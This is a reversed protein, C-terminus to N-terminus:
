RREAQLASRRVRDILLRMPVEGQEPLSHTSEDLELAKTIRKAAGHVTSHRERGLQHAIEPWSLTTLDRLLYASVGRALTIRRHRSNGLLEHRPINLAECVANVVDAPRVPRPAAAAGLTRTVLQLGITEGTGELRAMADLRTLAGELERVTGLTREVVLDAAAPELRLGRRSALHNVIALRTNVDPSEIHVVMGSVCRSSLARSFAKFRNPHGDGALLLKTGHLLCADLMHLFENQTGEKHSFFHVDDIALLDLTRLQQRFRELDHERVARIYENTFQEASYYRIRSFQTSAARVAGQLLHTKGVGCDGHLFLPSMPSAHQPDELLRCVSRYALQNSPGEVFHELQRYAAMPGAQGRHTPQNTAPGRSPKWASHSSPSAPQSASPTEAFRPGSFGNADGAPTSADTSKVTDDQRVRIRWPPTQESRIGKCAVRLEPIFKTEVWRAAFANDVEIVVSHPDQGSEEAQVSASANGLWRDYKTEGLERRLTGLIAAEHERHSMGPSQSM